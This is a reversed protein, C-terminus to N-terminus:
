VTAAKPFVLRVTTGRGPTSEIEISGGLSRMTGNVVALGMGSSVALGRTTFFPDLAQRKTEADMGFGFDVVEITAHDDTIPRTRIIIEKGPPSAEVANELVAQIAELIAAENGLVPPCPETLLILRGPENLQDALQHRHHEVLETLNVSHSALIRTGAVGMLLQVINAADRAGDRIADVEVVAEHEDCLMERALDAHGIVVTLSNNLHHAVGGALKGVSALKRAQELESRRVREATIDEFVSAIALIRGDATRIPSLRISLLIRNGDRTLRTGELKVSSEGEAIRKIAAALEAKEEQVPLISISNGIVEDASYGYIREAAENWTLIRGDVTASAIGAASDRVITALHASFMEAKAQVSANWLLLALAAISVITVMVAVGQETTHLGSRQAIVRIYGLFASGFLIALLLRRGLTAASTSNSLIPALGRDATMGFIALALTTVGLATSLAMVDDAPSDSRIGYVYELTTLTTAGLLLILVCHGLLVPVRGRFHLLILAVGLLLQAFGTRPVMRGTRSRAAESVSLWLDVAFSAGAFDALRLVAISTVVLALLIQLNAHKRSASGLLYTSVAALFLSLAVVPHAARGGEFATSFWTVGLVWEVFVISASAGVVAACIVARRKWIEPSVLSYAAFAPVAANRATMPETLLLM